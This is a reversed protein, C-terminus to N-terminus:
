FFKKVSKISYTPDVGSNNAEPAPNGEWYWTNDGQGRGNSDLVGAASSSGLWALYKNGELPVGKVLQAAFHPSEFTFIRM